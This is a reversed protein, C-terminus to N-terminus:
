RWSLFHGAFSDVEVTQNWFYLAYDYSADWERPRQQMFWVDTLHRRFQAWFPVREESALFGGRLLFLVHDSMALARRTHAEAVIFPPNGATLDFARKGPALESAWAPTYEMFDVCRTRLKGFLADGGARIKADREAERRDSWVRGHVNVWAGADVDIAHVHAGAEALERAWGGGGASPELTRAGRLDIRAQILPIAARVLPIPTYYADGEVRDSGTKVGDTYGFLNM